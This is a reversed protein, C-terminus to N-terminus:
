ASSVSPSKSVVSPCLFSINNLLTTVSSKTFYLYFTLISLHNIKEVLDQRRQLFWPKCRNCKDRGERLSGLPLLSAANRMPKPPYKTKHKISFASKRPQLLLFTKMLALHACLLHVRLQTEIGSKSAHLFSYHYMFKDRQQM